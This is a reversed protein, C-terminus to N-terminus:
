KFIKIRIGIKGSYIFPQRNIDNRKTQQLEAIIGYMNNLNYVVQGTFDWNSFNDFPRYTRNVTYIINFEFKDIIRDFKLGFGFAIRNYPENLDAYEYELSAFFNLYEDSVIKQTYRININPTLSGNGKNDGFVLLRADQTVGLYQSYSAFTTLLTVFLIISKM